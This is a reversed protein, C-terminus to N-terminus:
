RGSKSGINFEWVHGPMSDEKFGASVMGTSDSTYTEAERVTLNLLICKIGLKMEIERVAM